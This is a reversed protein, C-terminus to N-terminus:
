RMQKISEYEAKVANIFEQLEEDETAIDPYKAIMRDLYELERIIQRYDKLAQTRTLGGNRSKASLARFRLDLSESLKDLRTLVTDFEERAEAVQTCNRFEVDPAQMAKLIEGRSETIGDAIGCRHAKQPSLTLLEGKKCFVQLMKDGPQKDTPDVFLTKGDREIEYIIIDKDEMAQALLGNRGNAQALAALYNRWASSFKEGIEEGFVEKQTRVEDGAIVIATAAGIATNSAMYIKDCALSVAAGGSYAGLNKEGKVFAVTQANRLESIAACLRRTLDVRGGPSDIEILIFLPGKAAEELLAAEFAATEIEYQIEDDIALVSVFPNRGKYSYETKYDSLNLEIEGAEVTQVRAIGNTDFSKVYGTYTTAGDQSTFTDARTSHIAAVSLVALIVWRPM